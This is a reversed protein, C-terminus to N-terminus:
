RLTCCPVQVTNKKKKKKKSTNLLFFEKMGKIKFTIRNIKKVKKTNQNNIEIRAKRFIEIVQKIRYANDKM